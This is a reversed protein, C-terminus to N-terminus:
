RNPNLKVDSIKDLGLTSSNLTRGVALVVCEVGSIVKEKGEVVVSVDMKGDEMKDIRTVRSQLLINMNEEQELREELQRVVQQDFSRLIKSRVVVSVSSGLGALFCATEM